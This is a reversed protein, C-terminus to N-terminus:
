DIKKLENHGLIAVYIQTLMPEPLSHSTAQRCWTLLMVQVLTLKDDSRDRPWSRIAIDYSSRFIGILLFIVISNKFNCEAREPASSFNKLVYVYQNLRPIRLCAMFCYIKTLLYWVWLLLGASGDSHTPLLNSSYPICTILCSTNEYMCAVEHLKTLLSNIWSYLLVM